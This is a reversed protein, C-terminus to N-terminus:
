PQQTVGRSSTRRGEEHQEDATGEAEQPAAEGRDGPQLGGPPRARWHLRRLRRRALGVAAARDPQGAASAACSPAGGWLKDAARARQYGLLAPGGEGRGGDAWGKAPELGAREHRQKRPGGLRSRVNCTAVKLELPAEAGTGRPNNEDEPTALM